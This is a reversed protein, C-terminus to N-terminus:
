RCSVRELATVRKRLTRQANRLALFKREHDELRAAVAEAEADQLGPDTRLARELAEASVFLKRKGMRKLIGGPVQHHLLWLRRLMTRRGVGALAAAETMSLWRDLKM